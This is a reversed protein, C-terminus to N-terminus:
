DISSSLRGNETPLLIPGRGIVADHSVERNQEPGTDPSRVPRLDLVKPIASLAHRGSAIVQRIPQSILATRQSVEPMLLSAFAMSVVIVLLIHVAGNVQFHQIAYGGLVPGLACAGIALMQGIGTVKAIMEDDVNRVLYTGFEVNGIAGTLGLIFMTIASLYPSQGGVLALSFLAVSWSIMQILLWCGRVANPVIRSCFAGVAGGAGSAALVAGIAVTSFQKSHAEVLFMLILAQAVMSTTAMLGVTLLAHRDRKLWGFGQGIDGVVKRPLLSRAEGPQEDIRRVLLLSVSSAIFSVADALFPLFPEISFLFPGVPRGALVAAHARVEISAQQSLMKDREMVRNLYRRDALTSFIELIEEAVMALILFWIRVHMRFIVLAIVVSAIALGRLLESVLMVRRPNWRDVLVGAPVYVLISPAIAAFAVLGTIFPSKNLHLVLMPFAVTSIRTGLMSISSGFMLLRFAPSSSLWVRATRSRSMLATAARTRLLPFNELGQEDDASSTTKTREETTTKRM